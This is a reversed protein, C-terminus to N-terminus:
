GDRSICNIVASIEYTNIGFSHTMYRIMLVSVKKLTYDM